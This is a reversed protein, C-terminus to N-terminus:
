TEGLVLGFIGRSIIGVALGMLGGRIVSYHNNKMQLRGILILEILSCSGIDIKSLKFTNNKFM